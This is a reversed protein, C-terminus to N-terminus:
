GGFFVALEWIATTARDNELQRGGLFELEWIATTARSLFSGSLDDLAM